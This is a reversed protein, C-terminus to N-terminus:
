HFRYIFLSSYSILRLHRRIVLEIKNQQILYITEVVTSVTTADDEYVNLNPVISVCNRMVTFIMTTRTVFVRLKRELSIASSIDSYFYRFIENDSDSCDFKFKVRFFTEHRNSSRGSKLIRMGLACFRRPM